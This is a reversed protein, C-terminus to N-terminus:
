IAKVRQQTSKITMPTGTPTCTSQSDALVVPQGEVFVRTAAQTWTGTVCPGGAEVPYSCGAISYTCSQPIVGSGNIQVRTSPATPTATGQHTCSVSASLDVIYGPMNM